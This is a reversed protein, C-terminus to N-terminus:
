PKPNVLCAYQTSFIGLINLAERNQQASMVPGKFWAWGLGVGWSEGIESARFLVKAPDKISSVRFGLGGIESARCLVKAPDKIFSGM